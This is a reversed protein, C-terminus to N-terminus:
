DATSEARIREVSSVFQQLVELREAPNLSLMWRILTLDVGDESISPPGPATEPQLEM